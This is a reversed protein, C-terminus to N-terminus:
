EGFAVQSALKTNSDKSRFFSARFNDFIEYNFWDNKYVSEIRRLVVREIEEINTEIVM